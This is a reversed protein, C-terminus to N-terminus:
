DYDHYEPKSYEYALDAAHDARDRERPDAAEQRDLEAARAEEAAIWAEEGEATRLMPNDAQPDHTLM